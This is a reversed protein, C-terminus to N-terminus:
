HDIRNSSADPSKTSNRATNNARVGVLRDLLTIDPENGLKTAESTGDVRAKDLDIRKALAEDLNVDLNLNNTHILYTWKEVSFAVLVIDLCLNGLLHTHGFVVDSEAQSGDNVVVNCGGVPCGETDGVDARGKDLTGLGRESMDDTSTYELVDDFASFLNRLGDVFDNFISGGVPTNGDLTHQDLVDDERLFQLVREGHRCLALSGPLGLNDCRTSFHFRGFEHTLSGVDQAASWGHLDAIQLSHLGHGLGGVTFDNEKWAGVLRHVVLELHGGIGAFTGAM